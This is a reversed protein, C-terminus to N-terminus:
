NPQLCDVAISDNAQEGSFVSKIVRSGEDTLCKRYGMGLDIETHELLAHLNPM